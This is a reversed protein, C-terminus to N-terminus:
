SLSTVPTGDEPNNCDMSVLSIVGCSGDGYRNHSGPVVVIGIPTWGSNPWYGRKFIALESGDNKSFLVDLPEAQSGDTLIAWDPISTNELTRREQM